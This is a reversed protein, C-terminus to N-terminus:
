KSQISPYVMYIYIYIYDICIILNLRVYQVVKRTKQNETQKKNKQNTKNKEASVRVFGKQSLKIIPFYQQKAM